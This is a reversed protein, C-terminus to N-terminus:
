QCILRIGILKDFQLGYPWQLYFLVIYTCIAEYPYVKIIHRQILASKGCISLSTKLHLVRGAGGGKAGKDGVCTRGIVQARRWSTVERVEVGRVIVNWVWGPVSGKRAPPSPCKLASLAAVLAPSWTLTPSTRTLLLHCTHLKLIPYPPNRPPLFHPTRYTTTM